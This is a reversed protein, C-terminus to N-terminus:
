IVLLAWSANTDLMRKMVTQLQQGTFSKLSEVHRRSNPPVIELCWSGLPSLRILNKHSTTSVLKLQLTLIGPKQGMSVLSTHASM